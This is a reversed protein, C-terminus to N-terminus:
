RKCFISEIIKKVFTGANPLGTTVAMGAGILVISSNESLLSVLSSGISRIDNGINDCAM